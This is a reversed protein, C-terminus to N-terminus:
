YEKCERSKCECNVQSLGELGAEEEGEEIPKPVLERGDTGTAHVAIAKARRL